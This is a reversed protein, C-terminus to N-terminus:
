LWVVSVVLSCIMTDHVTKTVAKMKALKVMILIVSSKSFESLILCCSKGATTMCVASNCGSSVNKRPKMMVIICFPFGEMHCCLVTIKQMILSIIVIIIM